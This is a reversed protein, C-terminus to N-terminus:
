ESFAAFVEFLIPSADHLGFRSVVPVMFMPSSPPVKSGIWRPCMARARAAISFHL